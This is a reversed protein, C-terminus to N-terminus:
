YKTREGKLTVIMKMQKNMSKITKDTIETPFNKITQRVRKSFAEFSEHTIEKAKADEGLKKSVFHFVNEIPNIDPSRPPISFLKCGVQDMASHANKLNQSPDGDQLFHKGKPNASHEFMQPFNERIFDAILQGNM